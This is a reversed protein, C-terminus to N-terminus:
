QINTLPSVLKDRATVNTVMSISFFKSFSCTCGLTFLASMNWMRFLSLNTGARGYRDYRGSM